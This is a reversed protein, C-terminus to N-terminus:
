LMALPARGDGGKPGAQHPGVAALATAIDLEWAISLIQHAMKKGGSM